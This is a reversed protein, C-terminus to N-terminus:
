QYFITLFWYLCYKAIKNQKIQIIQFKTKRFAKKQTEEIEFYRPKLTYAAGKFNTQIFFSYSIPVDFNTLNQLTCDHPFVRM